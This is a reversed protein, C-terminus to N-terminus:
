NQEVKFWFPGGETYYVMYLFSAAEIREFRKDFLVKNDGLMEYQKKIQEEVNQADYFTIASERSKGDGTFKIDAVMM